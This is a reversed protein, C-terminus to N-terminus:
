PAAGAKRALSARAEALQTPDAPRLRLVGPSVAALQEAVSRAPKAPVAVAKDRTRGELRATLQGVVSTVASPLPPPPWSPEVAPEAREADAASPDPLSTDKEKKREEAEAEQTIPDPTPGRNPPTTPPTIPHPTPDAPEGREGRKGWRKGVAERGVDAQETDRVMRRSYIVGADTRSFVGAEELEALLKACEKEGIGALIALRKPMVPQGNITVHGRPTGNHAICLMDMWLGRAAISCSRLAQDAQWDQWWFKSWRHETV